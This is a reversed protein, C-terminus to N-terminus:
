STNSINAVGLPTSTEIEIGRPAEVEVGRPAEVEVPAIDM